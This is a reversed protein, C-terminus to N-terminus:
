DRSQGTEPALPEFVFRLGRNTAEAFMSFHREDDIFRFRYELGAYAPQKLREDFHRISAIYKPGENGATTMFLRANIKRGSRVFAAEYDFMWDPQWDVDPSAAIYGSFLEPKTLMTFLVFTGGFSMGSLVRHAPDTRFNHEVFPIIEKELTGLFEAAHGSGPSGEVPAPVLDRRRLARFDLKEGAYGIGVIIFEPVVRDRVLGEYLGYLGTFHYNGDTAYLVPYKRRPTSQYSAPLAVYLLYDPGGAARSLTRLQTNPLTFGPYKPPPSSFPTEAATVPSVFCGFVVILLLISRM